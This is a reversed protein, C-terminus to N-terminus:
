AGSGDHARKRLLCRCDLRRLTNQSTRNLQWANTRRLRLQKDFMQFGGGLGKPLNTMSSRENSFSGFVTRRTMSRHREPSIKHRPMALLSTSSSDYKQNSGLRLFQPGRVASRAILV